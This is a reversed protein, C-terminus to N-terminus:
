PRDKWGDTASIRYPVSIACRMGDALFDLTTRASLQYPLAQEILDRGFGKHAPEPTVGPVGAERWVLELTAKGDEAPTSKWTVTLTGGAGKLAGYKVSNTTLEHMALGLGEAMKSTMRVEPGTLRVQEGESAGVSLLEDRILDGLNVLGEANRTVIVQTRALADLRGKFHAIIDDVDHDSEATRNFVSRVVTLMNRVRHQLEGVLLEQRLQLTRTDNVNTSTGLWEHVEGRADRVATARTRFWRYRKDAASWLRHEVDLDGSGNARSWGDRAAARDDPEVMELWGLGRSDSTSQGTLETWQPSAWTWEGIEDARWVIQPIGALLIELQRTVERLAAESQSREILDAAQRALIDFLALDRDHPAHVERWQTSILGLPRGSRSFLPASQVARLGSRRYEDRHAPEVADAAEIDPVIRRAPPAAGRDPWGHGGAAAGAWFRESQPHIGRTALLDFEGSEADFIQLCAADARMLAVAADLLQAHLTGTDQEQVLEASVAQLTQLDALESALRAESERM